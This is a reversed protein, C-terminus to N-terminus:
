ELVPVKHPDDLPSPPLLRKPKPTIWNAGGISTVNDYNVENILFSVNYFRCKRFTCDKFVRANKINYLTDAAIEIHDVSEFFNGHMTVDITLINLPGVLDCDEFTKGEVWGIGPPLLDELKIRNRLFHSQMPNIRDATQYFKKQISANIFMHRAWAILVSITATVLVGMAGCILWGIPGYAAVWDTLYGIWAPIGFSVLWGIFTVINGSHEWFWSWARKLREM